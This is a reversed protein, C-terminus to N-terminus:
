DTLNIVLIPSSSCRFAPNRFKYCGFNDETWVGGAQGNFDCFYPSTIWSDTHFDYQESYVTLATCNKCTIGRINVLEFWGCMLAKDPVAPLDVKCQPNQDIM